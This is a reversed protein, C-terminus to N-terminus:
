NLIHSPSFLKLIFGLCCKHGEFWHKAFSLQCCVYFWEHKIIYHKNWAGILVKHNPSPELFIYSLSGMRRKFNYIYRIDEPSPLRFLVDSFLLFTAPLFDYSNPHLRVPAIGLYNLMEQIFSNFPPVCGVWCM